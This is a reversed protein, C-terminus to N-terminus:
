VEMNEQEIEIQKMIAKYFNENIIALSARIEKGLAKGLEEKTGLTILPTEYFTCMNNFMKTTNASADEALIVMKAKKAKVAKETSFEGSAVAGAKM